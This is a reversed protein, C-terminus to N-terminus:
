EAKLSKVPDSMSAKLSQYGVAAYAVAIALLGSGALMWWEIDIRYAFSELWRQMGYWALPVSLVFALLVLKLFDKSILMVISQVSAGLVKRIGIERTRQGAAFAALGFLGSAAIALALITFFTFTEGVRADERYMNDFSDELFKYEFPYSSLAKMSRELFEVTGKTDEGDTKIAISGWRPEYPSLMVPAIRLHLDHFHFDKIVGIVKHKDHDARIEKGIAEEPTWGLAKAATENLIRTDSSDVKAMPPFDRGAILELGFVRLYDTTVGCTYIAVDNSRDEDGDELVTSSSINDPTNEAATAALIHPNERWKAYLADFHTLISRDRIDIVIVHDSKFGLAKNRIFDLQRYIVISGTILVTAVFFQGAILVRQLGFGRTHRVAQGKIALAPRLASIVLAPYSGSILGVLVVLLFMGPLFMGQLLLSIELRREVINSFYPLFFSTMGIAIVFAIIAILISEGLFQILLQKRGAGVVKRVAVEKTRHASRAIALNMYNICALLLVLIAIAGFVYVYTINGKTGLDFNVRTELHVDVFPQIFYNDNYDHKKGPEDDRYKRLMAPFKAQLGETKAGDVLRLFTHYSNNRWTPWTMEEASRSDSRLHILFSFQLTSNAPLDRMVARVTRSGGIEYQIVKGIPDEDGFLKAALSETLVIDQPDALARSWNGKVMTFPFVEFFYEDTMLGAEWFAHDNASILARAQRLRTAVSVEPYEAALVTAVQIPTVAFYESGMYNNGKQKQYIRYIGDADPIFQDYSYEYRIFMAIMLFASIGVALGGVNLFAYLKQRGIARIAIKTYNGLMM